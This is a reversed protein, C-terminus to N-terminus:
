SGAESNNIAVERLDYGQYQHYLILRGGGRLPFSVRTIEKGKM